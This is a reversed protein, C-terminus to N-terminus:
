GGVAAGLGGEAGGQGDSLGGVPKKQGRMGDVGDGSGDDFCVESYGYESEKLDWLIFGM